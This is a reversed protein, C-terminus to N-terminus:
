AIAATGAAGCRTFTYDFGIKNNTGGAEEGRSVTATWTVWETENPYRFRIDVQSEAGVKTAAINVQAQGADRVGTTTDAIARGKLNLSAGRQMIEQSYNGDDDWTTTDEAEENESPNVGGEQLGGVGVWVPTTPAMDSIEFVLDRANIQRKAM